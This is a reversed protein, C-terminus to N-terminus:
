SFLHLREYSKCSVSSASDFFDFSRKWSSYSFSSPIRIHENSLCYVPMVSSRGRECPMFLPMIQYFAKKQHHHPATEISMFESLGRSWPWLSAVSQIRSVWSWWPMFVFLYVAALSLSFPSLSFIFSFSVLPWTLAHRGLPICWIRNANRFPSPIPM